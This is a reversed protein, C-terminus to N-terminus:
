GFYVCIPSDFRGVNCVPLTLDEVSTVESWDCRGKLYIAKPDSYDYGWTEDFEVLGRSKQLRKLGLMREISGHLPWFTPDFSAKIWFLTM